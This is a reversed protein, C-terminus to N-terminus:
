DPSFGNPLRPTVVRKFWFILFMATQMLQGGIGISREESLSSPRMLSGSTKPKPRHRHSCDAFHRDFRNIWVRITGRSVLVGREALLNEVDATSLVFRYYTWVAYAIIERPFRVVKFRPFSNPLKM